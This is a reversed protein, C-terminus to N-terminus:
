WSINLSFGYSGADSITFTQNGQRPTSPQTGPAPNTTTPASPLLENVAGPIRGITFDLYHGVGWGLIFGGIPGLAVVETGPESPSQGFNGYGRDGYAADAYARDSDEGYGGDSADTGGCDGGDGGCDDGGGVYKFESADLERYGWDQTASKMDMQQTEKASM